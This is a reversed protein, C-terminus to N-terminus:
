PLPDEIYVIGGRVKRLQEGNWKRVNAINIPNDLEEMRLIKIWTKSPEHERGNQFRGFLCQRRFEPVYAHENEVGLLTERHIVHAVRCRYRIAGNIYIYGNLPGQLESAKKASDWYVAGKSDAIERHREPDAEEAPMDPGALKPNAPWVIAMKREHSM